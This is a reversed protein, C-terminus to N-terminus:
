AGGETLYGFIRYSAGGGVAGAAVGSPGGISGLGGYGGTRLDFGGTEQSQRSSADVASNILLETNSQGVGRTTDIMFQLTNPNNVFDHPAGYGLYWLARGSGQGLRNYGDGIGPHRDDGAKLMTLAATAAVAIVRLNPKGRTAIWACVGVFAIFVFFAVKYPWWWDFQGIQEMGDAL